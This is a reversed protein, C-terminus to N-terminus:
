YQPELQKSFGKDSIHKVTVITLIATLLLVYATQNVYDDPLYNLLFIWCFVLFLTCSATITIQIFTIKFNFRRRILYFSTVALPISSPFSYSLYRQSGTIVTCVAISMVESFAIIATCLLLDCVIKKIEFNKKRM